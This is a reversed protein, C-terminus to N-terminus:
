GWSNRWGKSTGAFFAYQDSLLEALLTMVTRNSHLGFGVGAPEIEVSKIRPM